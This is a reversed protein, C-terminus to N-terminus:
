NKISFRTRYTIWVLPFEMKQRRVAQVYLCIVTMDDFFVTKGNLSRHIPNKCLLVNDERCKISFRIIFKIYGFWLFPEEVLHLQPAAVTFMANYPENAIAFVM